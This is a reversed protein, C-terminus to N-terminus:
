KENTGPGQQNTTNQGNSIKGLDSFSNVPRYEGHVTAPKPPGACGTLLLCIISIGITLKILKM